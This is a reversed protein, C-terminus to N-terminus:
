GANNDTLTIKYSYMDGRFHSTLLEIPINGEVISVRELYFFPMNESIGLRRAIEPALVAEMHQYAMKLPRGIDNLYNYFSMTALNVNEFGPVLHAPVVLKQTGVPCDNIYRIRHIDYVEQHKQIQLKHQEYESPLRRTFEIVQSVPNLGREKMDDYFGKLSNLSREVKNNAIYAGKGHVRYVLGENVLQTVAHRATMRSVGFRKVIEEESPIKDNVKYRGSIIDQRLQQSIKLYYPLNQSEATSL